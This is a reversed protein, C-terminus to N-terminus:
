KQQRKAPASRKLTKVNDAVQELLRIQTETRQSAKDLTDKLSTLTEKFQVLLTDEREELKSARDTLAKRAEDAVQEQKDLHRTIRPWVAYRFVLALIVLLLTPWGYVSLIRELASSNDVQFLLM